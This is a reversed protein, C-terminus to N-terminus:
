MFVRAGVTPLFIVKNELTYRHYSFEFESGLGVRETVMYWLQPGVQFGLMKGATEGGPAPRDASWANAFGFLRLKNDFFPASFGATFRVDPKTAQKHYSYMLLPLITLKGFQLPVHVGAFWYSNIGVAAAHGIVPQIRQYGKIQIAQLYQAQASVASDKMGYRLETTWYYTGLRNRSLQQFKLRFSSRVVQNGAVQYAGTEYHVQMDPNQARAIHALCLMAMAILFAKKM